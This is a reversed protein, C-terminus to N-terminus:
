ETVEPAGQEYSYLNDELTRFMRDPGASVFFPRNGLAMGIAPHMAPMFVIPTGWADRLTVEDYVAGGVPGFLEPPAGAALGPGLTAAESRLAMVFDRNNLEAAALLTDEDPLEVEAMRTTLTVAVPQSASPETPPIVEVLPTVQPLQKHRAVYQSMLGDLKVLLGKTLRESSQRRVDWALSVMLGLVIILAAVVTLMEILTFARRSFAPRGKAARPAANTM